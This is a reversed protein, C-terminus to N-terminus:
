THRFIFPLDHTRRTENLVAIYLGSVVPRSSSLDFIYRVAKSARINGRIRNSWLKTLLRYTTTTYLRLLAIHTAAQVRISKTASLIRFSSKNSSIFEDDAPCLHYPSSM